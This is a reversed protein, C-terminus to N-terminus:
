FSVRIKKIEGSVIELHIEIVMVFCRYSPYCLDQPTIM